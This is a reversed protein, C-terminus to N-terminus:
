QETRFLLGGGDGGVKKYFFTCWSMTIAVGERSIYSQDLIADDLVFTSNTNSSSRMFLSINNDFASVVYSFTKGIIATKLFSSPFLKLINALIYPATNRPCKVLRENIEVGRSKVNELVKVIVKGREM